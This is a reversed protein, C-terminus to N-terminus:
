YRMTHTAEVYNLMSEIEEDTLNPFSTMVSYDWEKALLVARPHQEAIM